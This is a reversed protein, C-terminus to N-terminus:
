KLIQTITPMDLGKEQIKRKHLSFILGLCIVLLIIAGIVASVNQNGFPNWTTGIIAGLILALIPLLYVIFLSKALPKAMYRVVVRDEKQANVPNFVRLVMNNDDFQDCIGKSRADKLCVERRPLRVQVSGDPNNEVVMGYDSEQFGTNQRSEKKM